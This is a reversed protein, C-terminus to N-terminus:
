PRGEKLRDELSAELMRAKEAHLATGALGAAIRAQELADRDRGNAMYAVALNFRAFYDRPSYSIGTEAERLADEIRGLKLYVLSLKVHGPAYGPNVETARVLVDLAEGYRGLDYFATGLNGYAEAYEPNASISLNFERLADDLRGLEYYCIGLDDHVQELEVREPGIALAKDLEVVADSWRGEDRLAHGLNAHARGSYPAKRAADAWLAGETAWVRNRAFTLTVFLVMVVAVAWRRAVPSKVALALASVICAAFGVSPLYLRYEVAIDTIPILTSEPALAIFFWFGFFATAPSLRRVRYLLYLLAAVLLAALAVRADFSTTHELNYDVNQNVPLILLRLYMLLAGAESMLYDGVKYSVVPQVMFGQVAGRAALFAILMAAFPAYYLWKRWPGPREVVVDYVAMLAPLVVAFEKSLLGLLFFAPAAAGWALRGAAPGAGGERYRLFSVFGLLTFLCALLGARSSVYTVASTQIPHLAFLAAAAFGAAGAGRAGSRELM